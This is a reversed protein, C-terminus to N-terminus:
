TRRCLMSGRSVTVLLNLVLLLVLLNFVLILPHPSRGPIRGRVGMGGDLHIRVSRRGFANLWSNSTIQAVGTHSLGCDLELLAVSDSVM